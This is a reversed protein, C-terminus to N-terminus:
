SYSKIADSVYNKVIIVVIWTWFKKVIGFVVEAGMLFYCEGVERGLRQYGRIYKRDKYIQQNQTDCTFPIICYKDKQTQNIESLM